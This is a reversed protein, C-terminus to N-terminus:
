THLLTMVGLIPNSQFSDTSLTVGTERHLRVISCYLFVFTIDHSTVITLIAHNFHYVRFLDM